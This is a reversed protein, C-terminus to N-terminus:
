VKRGLGRCGLKRGHSGEEEDEEEGEEGEGAVGEGGGEVEGGFGGEGVVVFHELGEFDEDVWWWWGDSEEGGWLFGVEVFGEDVAREDGLVWVLSM